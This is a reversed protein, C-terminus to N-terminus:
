NESHRENAYVNLHYCILLFFVVLTKDVSIFPTLDRKNVSEISRAPQQPVQPRVLTKAELPRRVVM